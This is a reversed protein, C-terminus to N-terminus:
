LVTRVLLQMSELKQRIEANNSVESTPSFFVNKYKNNASM